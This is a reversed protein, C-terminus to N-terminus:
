TVYPTPLMLCPTSHGFPPLSSTLSTITPTTSRESSSALSDSTKRALYLLILRPIVGNLSGKNYRLDDFEPWDVGNEKLLALAEPWKLRLTKDLFKFSDAPFQKNIIEIEKAFQTQLGKFMYLFLNDLMDLVEHYHEEITMELDLGTFETM